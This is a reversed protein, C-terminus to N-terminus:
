CITRTSISKTIHDYRPIPKMESTKQFKWTFNDLNLTWVDNSNKQTHTTKHHGGFVVMQKGHVTATHQTMVPPWPSSIAPSTCQKERINYVHLQNLWQGKAIRVGGFLILKDQFSVMTFDGKFGPVSQATISLDIKEWTRQSLDFSWLNLNRLNPHEKLVFMKDGCITTSFQLDNVSDVNLLGSLPRKKKSPAAVAHGSNWKNWCLNGEGLAKKFAAMRKLRVSKVLNEWRQCVMSFNTGDRYTPLFNIIIELIENPLDGVGVM